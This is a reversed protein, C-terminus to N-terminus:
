FITENYYIYIKKLSAMVGPFSLGCKTYFSWGACYSYLLYSIYSSFFWSKYRHRNYYRKNIFKKVAILLWRLVSNGTGWSANAIWHKCDNLFLLPSFYFFDAERAKRVWYESSNEKMACEQCLNVVLLHVIFQPLVKYVTVNFGLTNTDNESLFYSMNHM